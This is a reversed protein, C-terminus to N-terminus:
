PGRVRLMADAADYAQKALKDGELRSVGPQKPAVILAAVIHAAFLDRLNAADAVSPKPVAAATMASEPLTPDVAYAWERRVARTPAPPGPQGLDLGRQRRGPLTGTM